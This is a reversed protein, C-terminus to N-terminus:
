NLLLIAGAVVFANGDGEWSVETCASIWCNHPPTTVVQHMTFKTQYGPGKATLSYCGQAMAAWEWRLSFSLLHHYHKSFDDNHQVKAPLENSGNCLAASRTADIKMLYDVQRKCCALRKLRTRIDTQACHHTYRVLPACVPPCFLHKQVFTNCKIKNAMMQSIM